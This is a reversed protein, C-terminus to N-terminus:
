EAKPPEPPAQRKAKGPLPIDEPWFIPIRPDRPRVTTDAPGDAIIIQDGGKLPFNALEEKSVPYRQPVRSPRRTTDVEGGEIQYVTDVPIIDSQGNAPQESSPNEGPQSM